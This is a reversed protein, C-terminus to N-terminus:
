APAGPLNFPGLVFANLLASNRPPRTGHVLYFSRQRAIFEHLRQPRELARLLLRVQKSAHRLARRVTQYSAEIIKTSPANCPDLRPLVVPPSLQDLLASVYAGKGTGPSVALDDIAVYTLVPKLGPQASPSPSTGHVAANRLERLTKKLFSRSESVAALRRQDVTLSQNRYIAEVLDFLSESIAKRGM